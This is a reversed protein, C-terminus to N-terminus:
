PTRDAIGFPDAKKRARNLRRTEANVECEPCSCHRGKTDWWIVHQRSGNKVVHPVTKPRKRSRRKSSTSPRKM